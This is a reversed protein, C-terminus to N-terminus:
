IKTCCPAAILFRSVEITHFPSRQHTSLICRQCFLEHGFCDTCRFLPHLASCEGCPAEAHNGRGELRLMEDLLLERSHDRWQKMPNDQLTSFLFNSYSLMSKSVSATRARKAKLGHDEDWAASLEPDMFGYEQFISNMDVESDPDNTAAHTDNSPTDTFHFPRPAPKTPAAATMSANVVSSHAGAPTVNVIAHPHVDKPRQRPQEDESDSEHFTEVAWGAGCVNSKVRRLRKM